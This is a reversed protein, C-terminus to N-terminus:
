SRSRERQERKKGQGPKAMQETGWEFVTRAREIREYPIRISGDPVELGELTIGASDAGILVGRVRRVTEAEPLTRVTVTEGLARAFHAPTRLRRELGPSSVELTYSGPFPDLTDLAHSVSGNADALADLDVGGPRDVTVQIQSGGIVVDVLELGSAQLVPSLADLLQETLDV